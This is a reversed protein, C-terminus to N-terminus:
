KKKILSELQKILIPLNNESVMFRFDICKRERIIETDNTLKYEANDCIVIIEFHKKYNESNEDKTFFENIRTSLITNM